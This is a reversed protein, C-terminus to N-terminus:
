ERCNEIKIFEGYWAMQSQLLAHTYSTEVSDKRIDCKQWSNKCLISDSVTDGAYNRLNVTMIKFAGSIYRLIGTIIEDIAGDYIQPLLEM